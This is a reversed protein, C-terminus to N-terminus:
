LSLVKLITGVIISFPNCIEDISKFNKTKELNSLKNLNEEIM